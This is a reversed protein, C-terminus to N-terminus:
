LKSKGKVKDTWLGIEGRILPKLYKEYGIIVGREDTGLERNANLPEHELWEVLREYARGDYAGLASNLLFDQCNLADVISVANPRIKRLCDKLGLHVLKAQEPSFYGDELFDVLSQEMLHFAYLDRLDSLVAKVGASTKHDLELIQNTFNSVLLLECHANSARFCEVNLDNWDAGEKNAKSLEHVLRAARHQFAYLQLTPDYMEVLTHAHCRERTFEHMNKLVSLYSITVQASDNSSLGANLEGNENRFAFTAKMLYRATQQTLLYSDGEFTQVARYTRSYDEIGSAMSYGHGGMCKRAEEIAQSTKLSTYSKLGSSYAHVDALMRFEKRDIEENLKIFMSRMWFSTFMFAFTQALLPFLRYQQMSYDLVSPEIDSTQRATGQRRVASYRISITVARSLSYAAAQVIRIRSSTMTGYKLKSHPPKMYVGDRSVKSYRMLMYDRPIRHNCFRAFGNDIRMMGVKPGIDLLEVTPLVTHDELSRLPVMFPHIGYDNNDIILRFLGIAHTATKAMSGIWFKASSLTPSNIVWEDTTKDLTATTELRSINSGHGLETQAYCGIIKYNLADELWGYKELQEESAQSQITPLFMNEHMSIPIHGDIYTKMILCEEESLGYKARLEVYRKSIALGRQFLELRNLFYLDKKDFIPDNAVLDHIRQMLEWRKRGGHFLESLEQVNFTARKRENELDLHQNQPLM